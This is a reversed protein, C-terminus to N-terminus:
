HCIFLCRGVWNLCSVEGNSSKGTFCSCLDSSGSQGNM